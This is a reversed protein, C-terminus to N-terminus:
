EHVLVRVNRLGLTPRYRRLIQELEKGSQASPSVGIGIVCYAALNLLGGAAHKGSSSELEFGALAVHDHLEPYLVGHERLDPDIEGLYNLFERLGAPLPLLWALDVECATLFDGAKKMVSRERTLPDRLHHLPESRRACEEDYAVSLVEPTYPEAVVLGAQRGLDRLHDRTASSWPLTEGGAPAKTREARLPTKTKASSWKRNALDDFWSADVPVVALDGFSRRITRIARAARRYIGKEGLESVVLLGLRTGLAAINAVDAAMTKTTPTTGEIEIGVIPLHQLREAPEGTVAAVAKAQATTLPISWLVDVRPIYAGDLRLSLVSNSVERTAIFGLREGLAVVQQHIAQTSPRM